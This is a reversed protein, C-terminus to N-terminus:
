LLGALAGTTFTVIPAWILAPKGREFGAEAPSRLDSLTMTQITCSSTRVLLATSIVAISASSFLASM